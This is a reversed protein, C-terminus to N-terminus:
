FKASADVAFEAPPQPAVPLCLAPIEIGATDLSVGAVTLIKRCARWDGPYLFTYYQDFETGREDTMRSHRVFRFRRYFTESGGATTLSALWRSAPPPLTALRALLSTTGYGQRHYAPHVMGFNLGAFDVTRERRMGIGGCARIEGAVEGVLVLNRRSLLWEAFHDFYGGPFRGPENLRYIEACADFDADIFPRFRCRPLPRQAAFVDFRDPARILRYFWRLFSHVSAM